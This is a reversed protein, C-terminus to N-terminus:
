STDDVVAVVVSWPLRGIKIYATRTVTTTPPVTIRLHRDVFRVVIGKGDPSELVLDGQFEAASDNTIEVHVPIWTGQKFRGNFGLTVEVQLNADASGAFADASNTFACLLAVVLVALSSAMRWDSKVRRGLFL